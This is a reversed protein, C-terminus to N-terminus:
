FPIDDIDGVEANSNKLNSDGTINPKALHPFRDPLEELGTDGGQNASSASPESPLNLGHQVALQKLLEQDYQIASGGDKTKGKQFGLAALLNGIRKYSYQYQKVRGENIFDTIDKIPLFGAKVKYGLGVIAKILEANLGESKEMKRGYEMDNFLAILEAEKSPAVIRIVQILPRTIDGFRGRFQKEVAPLERDLHRIRFETLREKLPLAFEPKVDNDFVKDTVPMTISLCRSELIFNVEENTAVITPGYIQYYKTDEFAGKDPYLVRPVTSGKEFRQLLMDESGHKEAKKWIDLVDFFITGKCDEAFRFIYPERLSEVHLGRYAVYVLGKGTRSKGREPVAYFCLIPSYEFQEFLYTHMDFAALLFYYAESPLESIKKHYEVLANFLEEDTASDERELAAEHYKLVNEAKPLKWQLKNAPPPMMVVGDVTASEATVPCGNAGKILYATKGSADVVDILGPFCASMKVNKKDANNQASGSGGSLNTAM